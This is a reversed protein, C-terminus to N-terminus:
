RREQQRNSKSSRTSATTTTLVGPAGRNAHKDKGTGEVAEPKVVDEIDDTEDDRALHEFRNHVSVICLQQAHMAFAGGKTNNSKAPHPCEKAYHAGGCNWCSGFRPGKGKSKGKAEGGKFGKGGKM